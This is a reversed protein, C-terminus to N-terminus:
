HDKSVLWHKGQCLEEENFVLSGKLEVSRGFLQCCSTVKPRLHWPLPDDIRSRICVVTLRVIM